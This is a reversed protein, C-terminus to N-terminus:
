LGTNVWEDKLDVCFRTAHRRLCTKKCHISWPLLIVCSQVIMNTTGIALLYRLKLIIHGWNLCSCANARLHLQAFFELPKIFNYHSTFNHFIQSVCVCLSLSLSLSLCISLSLSLSLYLSLSLSIRMQQNATSYRGLKLDNGSKTSPRPTSSHM